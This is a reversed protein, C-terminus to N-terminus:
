FIGFSLVEQWVVGLYLFVLTSTLVTYMYREGFALDCHFSLLLMGTYDWKHDSSPLTYAFKVRVKRLYLSQKLYVRPELFFM